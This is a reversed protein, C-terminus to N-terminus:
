EGGVVIVVDVDKYSFGGIQFGNDIIHTLHTVIPFPHYFDAFGEGIRPCVEMEVVKIEEADYFKSYVGVRIM